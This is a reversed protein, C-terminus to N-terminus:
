GDNEDDGPAAFPRVTARTRSPAGAEKPDISRLETAIEDLKEWIAKSGQLSHASSRLLPLLLQEVIRIQHAMVEHVTPPPMNVIEIPIRLQQLQSGLGELVTLLRPDTAGPAEGPGSARKGQATGVAQGVATVAASLASLQSTVRTVPDDDGGGLMLRRRYEVKISEWRKAQDPTLRERLDALKLVNQETGTTLTQAEGVYHDDILQELETDNMAPSVKSAIKAMNRYSGQLKFPPETRYADATAASAIYQQNVRLLIQQVRLLKELVSVMDHLEAPSYTGALDATSVQEKRAMSLVLRLDQPARNALVALAPNASLTNEIYSLEFLDQRGGLIDGLNYTDARNALMDPIQFREGSETYPNGAMVVAFRKGRLDYTRTRGRWVGEIKRQADCLSIFKQLLEPNTHQIDDLYLMTNNGLELAFNIKEVEQRATANPAEAPDLSTVAHGLAPGNVKVFVLGMRVALYEMLTTKGYGPPSILLLMGMRDSKGGTNGATGLQKAFNDGILPFYVQDILQNRVFSAMARPVLEAIRLRARAEEVLAHRRAVYKRFRPARVGWFERLRGTFEDIRFSLEGQRVRPHQGLLGGIRLEMLAALPEYELADRTCLAAAAEAVVPEFSVRRVGPELSSVYASVWARAVTFAAPRSARLAQLEGHLAEWQGDHALKQEFQELLRFAPEALPRKHAVRGLELALYESAAAILAPDTSLGEATAVELIVSALERELSAHAASAGFSARLRGLSIGRRHLEDWRQYHREKPAVGELHAWVVTALARAESSYRLLGASQASSVLKDLIAAADADHVGRDYGEDLRSAAAARVLELLGGDKRAQEHLRALSLGDAGAEAAFFVAAALAEGRYVGGSESPLADEWLDSFSELEPDQVREYYDTGSIHLALAGDRPVVTLDFPQTHISFRHKGLRLTNGEETIERKDRLGRVAEERRAALQSLVEDSRVVDGLSRLREATERLKEVLPDATFLTQLADVETEQQARRVIAALVRQAAGVLTDARRQREDILVQKKAAFALTLEERKASLRELYEDFESYRGELEESQLLLRSLLEDCKEPSDAMGLASSVSQTLLHFDAAFEARSEDSALAARRAQLTARIRNATTSAEGLRELVAIRVASDDVKLSATVEAFVELGRALGQLEKGLEDLQVTRTAPAIRAEMQQFRELLPRFAQESKAFDLTQRSTALMADQAEAELQAVRAPDVYRLDKLAVLKGRHQRISALAETYAELSSFKERALHKLLTEHEAKAKGFTRETEARAELVKAFEDVILTAAAKAERLPSLLDGADPHGLWHYADLTRTTASLLAEYVRMSPQAESILRCISLSDSIGRVLEANGIKELTGTGRPLADAHVETMFPSSWLQIPHVRTPERSESRFVLLGGDDLLAYGNCQIPNIIEKKILNYPYLLAQSQDPDRFVYLIDEGNPSRVVRELRMGQFPVDFVKTDGTALSYGGPFIIGHDEPLTVCSEGIADIRSVARSLTNFVFYRRQTERYPLVRLLILQGVKAYSVEADDLTQDRNEVAESFIGRGTETNNEVKITLDGGTSEVFLENLVNIHPYKGQVHDERSTLVWQFDHPPPPVLDREGRNDVYAVEVDRQIKWRLVKVDSSREGVRFAAVLVADNRRMSQLETSKYYKFLEAFDRAFAEGTLPFEPQAPAVGELSFAGESRNIRFCGFVDEVRTETRLGLFTRFGVLLREGLAVIDRPTSNNETRIRESAVMRIESSGFVGSRERNLADARSRLESAHSQLRRLLVEYNDSQLPPGAGNDTGAM